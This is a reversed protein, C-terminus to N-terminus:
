CSYGADELGAEQELPHTCADNPNHAILYKWIFRVYGYRAWQESHVREHRLLRELSPAGSGPPPMGTAVSRRLVDDPAAFSGNVVYMDGWTTGGRAAFWGVANRMGLARDGPAAIMTGEPTAALAGGHRLVLGADGDTLGGLGQYSWRNGDHRRDSTSPRGGNLLETARVIELADRGDEIRVYARGDPARWSTRGALVDFAAATVGEQRARSVVEDPSLGSKLTWSVWERYREGPADDLLGAARLLEVSESVDARHASDGILSHQSDSM